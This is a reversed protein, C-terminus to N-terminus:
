KYNNEALKPFRKRFEEFYRHGFTRLSQANFHVDDPFPNGTLGEASVYSIYDYQDAMKKLAENVKFYKGFDTKGKHEKLFDGLGGVLFPVNDSFSLEKRLAEFIHACKTYYHLYREDRIDSEGQHWLVGAITSTRMALRAQNLANDFLLEGPMWQDLCTGGDACPILGVDTNYNKVFDDAFSEALSIGSFCRDPNIPVFMEVWRANRLVHIRPNEIPVVEQVYGRGAMNSQGIMLFSYM